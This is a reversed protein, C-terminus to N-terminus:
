SEILIKQMRELSVNTICLQKHRCSKGRLLQINSKGIGLVDALFEILESNAEGKEPVAALRIKLEDSEWGVITSKSSKPIVKVKLVIGKDTQQLM